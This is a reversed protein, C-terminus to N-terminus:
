RRQRRIMVVDNDGVGDDQDDANDDSYKGTIAHHDDGDDDGVSLNAVCLRNDAWAILARRASRMNILVYRRSSKVRAGGVIFRGIFLDIFYAM